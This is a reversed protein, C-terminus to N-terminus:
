VAIATSYKIERLTLSSNATAVAPNSLLINTLFHEYTAVDSVVVILLYDHDGSVSYCERVERRAEVMDEFSRRSEDSHRDLKVNCIMCIELGVAERDVLAVQSRIVGNEELRQIRRWVATASGGVRDAIEQNTLTADQQIVSLIKRENDTIQM